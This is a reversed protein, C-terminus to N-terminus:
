KRAAIFMCIALLLTTSAAVMSLWLPIVIKDNLVVKAKLILRMFHMISVASFIVGAAILAMVQM